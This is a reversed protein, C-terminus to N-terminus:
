RAAVALLMVGPQAKGGKEGEGCLVEAFGSSVLERVGVSSFALVVRLGLGVDVVEVLRLM